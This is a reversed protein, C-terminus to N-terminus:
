RRATGRTTIPNKLKRHIGTRGKPPVPLTVERSWQHIGLFSSVRSATEAPNPPQRRRTGRYYHSRTSCNFTSRCRTASSDEIAKLHVHNDNVSHTIIQLTLVLSSPRRHQLPQRSYRAVSLVVVKPTGSVSCVHKLPPRTPTPEQGSGSSGKRSESAAEQNGSTSSSGSQRPYDTNDSIMVSNLAVLSVM